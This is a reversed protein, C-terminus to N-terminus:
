GNKLKSILEQTEKINKMKKVWNGRQPKPSKPDKKSKAM